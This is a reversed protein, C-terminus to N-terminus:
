RDADKARPNRLTGHLNMLDLASLRETRELIQRAHDDVQRMEAKEGDTMTLVRLALMEDIETGDFFDGASEPAVQPYDYLIIPSALMADRDSAEGALVPFLGAQSCSEALEEFGGPPDLLSLFEGGEIQLIAHTSVLARMLLDDRDCPEGRALATTNSVRVRVRFVSDRVQHGTVEVEGTLAHQTRVTLSAGAPHVLRQAFFHFGRQVPDASLEGLVAHLGVDRESAEQWEGPVGPEAPEITRSMLHLFRIRVTLRAAADGRVLCETRLSSIEGSGGANCYAQPVVVGFNFRQRNKMASARYPYLIYGEYLIANAIETVRSANM